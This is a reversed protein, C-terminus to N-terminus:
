SRPRLASAVPDAAVRQGVALRREPALSPSALLEEAQAVLQAAQNRRGISVALLAADLYADIAREVDGSRSSIEASRKMMWYASRNDRAASYAWAAMRWDSVAGADDGRLAAASRYLRGAELLRQPVDGGLDIARAKAVLSDARAARESGQARAGAPSLALATMTLAVVLPARAFRAFTM